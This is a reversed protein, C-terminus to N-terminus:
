SGLWLGALVYCVQSWLFLGLIESSLAVVNCTDEVNWGLMAPYHIAPVHWTAGRSVIAASM